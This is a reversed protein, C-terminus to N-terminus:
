LRYGGAIHLCAPAVEELVRWSDSAGGEYRLKLILYMQQQRMKLPVRQLRREGAIDFQMNSM